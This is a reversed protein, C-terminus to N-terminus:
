ISNKTRKSSNIKRKTICLNNIDCILNESIDNMFGYYISIKHDITPYLSSGSKHSLYPRIFEGDYFDFGDWNEFLKKKIRNTLNKCNRKYLQFPSLDCDSVRFGNKEKTNKIKEKVDDSNLFYNSQFIFNSGYKEFTTKEMRDSVSKHRRPHEVGYNKMSTERKKNNCKEIFNQKEEENEFSNWFKSTVNKRFESVGMGYKELYIEDSNIKEILEPIQFVNDVGYKEKVTKNRKHYKETGKCLVNKTGYREINTKERKDMSNKAGESYSRIKLNHYNLLFKISNFDIGHIKYLENLSLKEVIYQNILNEKTAILPFNHELYYVRLEDKSLNTKNEKCFILHRNLKVENCFPCKMNHKKSNYILRCMTGDLKDFLTIKM